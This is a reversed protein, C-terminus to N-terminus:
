SHPGNKVLERVDGMHEEPVAVFNGEYQKPNQSMESLLGGELIRLWRFGLGQLFGATDKARHDWAASRADELEALIVPRPRRNLFELAGEFVGLEGGEVDLKIFDVHRIGKAAIWSDLRLIHVNIERRLGPIDSALPKLSSCGTQFDVIHLTGLSDESGLALDEVSVNKCRNLRLNLHLAKQERSSPEFAIVEGEPGVLKSFLLTYFGHHAGVDLVTMGIKLFRRLFAREDPEFGDSTLTSGLYDNRGMFWAGFPLRVPFPISPFVRKWRAYFSRSKEDVPKQLFRLTRQLIGKTPPNVTATM